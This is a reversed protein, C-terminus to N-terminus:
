PSVICVSFALKKGSTPQLYIFSLVVLLVTVLLALPVVFTSKGSTIENTYMSAMLGICICLVVAFYMDNSIRHEISFSHNSLSAPSLKGYCVVLYTVIQSTLKTSHKLKNANILQNAIFTLTRPDRNEKKEYAESEEYRFRTLFRHEVIITLCAPKM